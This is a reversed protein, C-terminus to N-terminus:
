GDGVDNFVVDDSLETRLSKIESVDILESYNLKVQILPKCRRAM